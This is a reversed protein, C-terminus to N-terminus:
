LWNDLHSVWYQCAKSQLGTIGCNCIVSWVLTGHPVPMLVCVCVCVCVCVSSLFVIMVREEGKHYTLYTGSFKM